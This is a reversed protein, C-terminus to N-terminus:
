QEAIYWAHVHWIRGWRLLSRHARAVAGGGKGMVWSYVHVKGTCARNRGWRYLSKGARTTMAKESGRRVLWSYVKHACAGNREWRCLSRGTRAERVGRRM